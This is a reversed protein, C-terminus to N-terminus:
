QGLKLERDRSGLNESAVYLPLVCIVVSIIMLKRTIPSFLNKSSLFLNNVRILIKIRTDFTIKRFIYM